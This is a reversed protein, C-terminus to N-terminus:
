RTGRYDPGSPNGPSWSNSISCSDFIRYLSVITSPTFLSTQSTNTDIPEIINNTEKTLDKKKCSIFLFCSLSMAFLLFNKAM